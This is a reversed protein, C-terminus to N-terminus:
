ADLPIRAALLSYSSTSTVLREAVFADLDERRYLILKRGLRAFKPGSGSVRQKRLMQLSVCLYQAAAKERLFPPLSNEVVRTM